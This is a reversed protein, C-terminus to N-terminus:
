PKIINTFLKKILFFVIIRPISDLQSSVATATILSLPSLIGVISDLM